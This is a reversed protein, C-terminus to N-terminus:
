SIVHKHIDNAARARRIQVISQVSFTLRYASYVFFDNALASFSGV